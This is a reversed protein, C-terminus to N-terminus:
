KPLLKHLDEFASITTPGPTIQLSKFYKDMEARVLTADTGFPDRRTLVKRIKREADDPHYHAYANKLYKRAEPKALAKSLIENIKDKYKFMDTLTIKQKQLLENIKVEYIQQVHGLEGRTVSKDVAHIGIESPHVSAGEPLMANRQGFRRVGSYQRGIIKEWAANVNKWWGVQADTPRGWSYVGYRKDSYAKKTPKVFGPKLPQPGLLSTLGTGEGLGQELALKFKEGRPSLVGGSRLPTGGPGLWHDLFGEIQFESQKGTSLDKLYDKSWPQRYFYGPAVAHGRFKPVAMHDPRYLAKTLEDFQRLPHAMTGPPTFIEFEGFNRIPKNTALKNIGHRALLSGLKSGGGYEVGSMAMERQLGFNKWLEKWSMAKQNLNIQPFKKEWSKPLLGTRGFLKGLTVQGLEELGRMMESYEDGTKVGINSIDEYGLNHVGTGKPVFSKGTKPLKTLTYNGFPGWFDLVDSYDPAGRLGSGMLKKKRFPGLDDWHVDGKLKDGPNYPKDLWEAASARLTKPVNRWYSHPYNEQGKYKMTYMPGAKELNEYGQGVQKWYDEIYKNRTDLSIKGKGKGVQGWTGQLWDPAYSSGTPINPYRPLGFMHRLYGAQYTHFPTPHPLPTGAKKVAETTMPTGLMHAETTTLKAYPYDNWWSKFAQKPDKRAARFAEGILELPDYGSMPYMNTVGKVLSRAGKKPANYLGRAIKPAYWPAFGATLAQMPHGTEMMAWPVTEFMNLGVAGLMSQAPLLPFGTVAGSTYPNRVQHKNGGPDYINLFTTGFKTNKDSLGELPKTDGKRNKFTWGSLKNKERFRVAETSWKEMPKADGGSILPPELIKKKAGPETGLPYNALNYIQKIPNTSWYQAGPFDAKTRVPQQTSEPAFDQANANNVDALTQLLQHELNNADPTDSYSLLQNPDRVNQQLLDTLISM